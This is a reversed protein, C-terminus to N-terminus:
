QCIPIPISFSSFENIVLDFLVLVTHSLSLSSADEIFRSLMVRSIAKKM